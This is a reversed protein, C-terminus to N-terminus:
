HITRERVREVERLRLGFSPNEPRRAVMAEPSPRAEPQRVSHNRATARGIRTTSEPTPTGTSEVVAREGESVAM